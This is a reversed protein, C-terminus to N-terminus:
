DEPSITLSLGDLDPTIRIQCALRSAAARHPSTDLLEGEIEGAAGVRDAWQPDIFVHCTACFCCGGCVALMDAVGGDRVTEMLTRGITADLVAQAGTRNTVTIKLM